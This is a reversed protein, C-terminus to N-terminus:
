DDFGGACGAPMQEDMLVIAEERLEIMETLRDVAADQPPHKM